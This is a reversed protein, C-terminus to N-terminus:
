LLPSQDRKPSDADSTSKYQHPLSRWSLSRLQRASPQTNSPVKNLAHVTSTLTSSYISSESESVRDHDSCCGGNGGVLSVRITAREQGHYNTIYASVIPELDDWNNTELGDISEAMQSTLGRTSVAMTQSPADHRKPTLKTTELPQRQPITHSNVSVLKLGRLRQM